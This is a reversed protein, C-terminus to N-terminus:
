EEKKIKGRRKLNDREIQKKRVRWQRLCKPNGKCIKQNRHRFLPLQKGCKPNQCYKIEPLNKEIELYLELCCLAFHGYIMRVKRDEKDLPNRNYSLAFPREVEEDDIDVGSLWECTKRDLYINEIKDKVITELYNLESPTTKRTQFNEAIESFSEHERNIGLWNLRRTTSQETPILCEMDHDLNEEVIDERADFFDCFTYQKFFDSKEQDKKLEAFKKYLRDPFTHLNDGDLFLGEKNIFYSTIIQITKRKLTSEEVSELIEKIHRPAYSSKELFDKFNSSSDDDTDHMTGNVDVGWQKGRGNQLQSAQIGFGDNKLFDKDLFGYDFSQIILFFSEKILRHANLKGM